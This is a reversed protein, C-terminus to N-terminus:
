MKEPASVGLLELGCKLTEAVKKTLALRAITLGKDDSVVRHKQYFYHFAHALDLLYYTVYSPELNRVVDELMEPFRLIAKVLAIEEKEKILTHDFAKNVVVKQEAAFDLISMIRAHAYQVYYVPNDESERLALDLDFDLHQSCSRMLLFFRVVDKPVQDLLSDLTVVTGARKSMTIYTGAKKLKVEQVILVRLTEEPYGLAM